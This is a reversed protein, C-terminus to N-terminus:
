DTLVFGSYNAIALPCGDRMPGGTGWWQPFEINNNQLTIFIIFGCIAVGCSMGASFVYAYKEWWVHAYRYLIFNFIFGVLFWTTFEVAPAPPLANTAVLILPFNIFALWKINSLKKWLFWSIIPLVLGILLGFLLPYYISGVGFTKDFGVVGWIVSSTFSAEVRLCKWLLNKHTCINPINNLLYMATIYHVISAIISCILLMSFTIRPPIKMYHAIKFSLLFSILLQQCSNTYGRLTLFGIPNGPVIYSSLIDIPVGLVFIMNTVAVIIGTPIMIIFNIVIAVIMIYGPLLPSSYCYILGLVFSLFLIIYYWWEFVEPYHSMLKAHIDNKEDSLTMQFQKVIFKGHYLLTHVIYASFAALIFGDSVAYGAAMRVGGYIEYATENLLLDKNLVKM